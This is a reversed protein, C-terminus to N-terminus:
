TLRTSLLMISIALILYASRLTPFAPLLHISLQYATTQPFVGLRQCLFYPTSVCGSCQLSHYLDSKTTATQGRYYIAIVLSKHCHHHHHYSLSLSQSFSFLRSLRAKFQGRARPDAWISLSTSPDDHISPLPPSCGVRCCSEWRHFM